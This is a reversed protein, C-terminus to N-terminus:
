MFLCKTMFELNDKQGKIGTQRSTKLLEKFLDSAKKLYESDLKVPSNKRKRENQEVLQM